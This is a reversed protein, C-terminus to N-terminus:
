RYNALIEALARQGVGRTRPDVSSAADLAAIVNSESVLERAHAFDFATVRLIVNGDGRRLGLARVADSLTASAIYGDVSDNAALDVLGLRTMDAQAVKERLRPLASHHAAYHEVRARDRTRAMLESPDELRRLTARLRSTQSAGLWGADSGALLAIAAWATHEAWVRTRAQRHSALYRDVSNRDILGRAVKTIAGSDALRRAHRGSVHLAAAAEDLTLFDSAMVSLTRM